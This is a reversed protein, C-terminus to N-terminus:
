NELSNIHTKLKKFYSIYANYICKKEEIGEIIGVMFSNNKAGTFFGLNNEKQIIESKIKAKEKKDEFIIEELNKISNLKLLNELKAELIKVILKSENGNNELLYNSIKKQFELDLYITHNSIEKEYWTKILQCIENFALDKNKNFKKISIEKLLNSKEEILRAKLNNNEKFQNRNKEFILDCCSKFENWLRENETKGIYGIYKWDNQLNKIKFTAEPLSLNEAQKRAIEILNKKKHINDKISDKLEHFHKNKLENFEKTLSNFNGWIENQYKNELKGISLFNARLQEFDIILKKWNINNKEKASEILITIKQIISQKVSLNELKEKEQLKILDNKRLYVENSIKKFEEWTSTRFKLDVPSAERWKEQLVSIENLAKKINPESILNKAYSILQYRLNLNEQYLKNQLEKNLDLFSYFNNLHHHFNENVINIKDKPIKQTKKWNILIEKFDKYILDVSDTSSYLKKIEEILKLKYEYNKNELLRENEFYKNLKEKHTNYLSLFEKFELNIKEKEPEIFNSDLENKNVKNLTTNFINKIHNLTFNIERGSFNEVLYTTYLVLESPSKKELDKKDLFSIENSILQTNNDNINSSENLQENLM